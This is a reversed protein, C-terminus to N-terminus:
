KREVFVEEGEKVANKGNYKVLIFPSSVPGFVEIVKGLESKNKLYVTENIEPIDEAKIVINNSKTLHYVVGVKKLPM